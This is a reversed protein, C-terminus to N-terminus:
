SSFAVFDIHFCSSRGWQHFRDLTVRGRSATKLLSFSGVASKEGRGRGMQSSRNSM